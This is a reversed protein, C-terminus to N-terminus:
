WFGSAVMFQQDNTEESGLVPKLADIVDFFEFATLGSMGPHCVTQHNDAADIPQVLRREIDAAAEHGGAVVEGYERWILGFASYPVGNERQPVGNQHHDFRRNAPDYVGGVDVVYDGAAITAEDRSRIVRTNEIGLYLQLTAVALVDDPDFAGSHTIIMQM